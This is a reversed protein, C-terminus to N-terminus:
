QTRRPLPVQPTISNGLLAAYPLFIGNAWSLFCPSGARYESHIFDSVHAYLSLGAVIFRAAVSDTRSISTISKVSLSFHEVSRVSAVNIVAISLNIGLGSMKRTKSSSPSPRPPANLRLTDPPASYPVLSANRRKRVSPSTANGDPTTSRSDNKLFRAADTAPM